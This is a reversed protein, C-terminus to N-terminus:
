HEQRENFNDPPQALTLRQQFDSVRTVHFLTFM